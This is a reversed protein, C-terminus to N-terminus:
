SEANYWKRQKQRKEVVNDLQREIGPLIFPGKIMLNWSPSVTGPYMYM